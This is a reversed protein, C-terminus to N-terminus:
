QWFAGDVLWEGGEKAYTVKIDQDFVREQEAGSTEFRQASVLVEVKGSEPLFNEIQPSVLVNTIMGYYEGSYESNNKLEMLYADAWERMKKTMFEKSQVINEYNSHNSYSGFRETFAGAMKKFDEESWQRSKELEEDYTYIIKNKEAEKMEIFKEEESMVEKNDVPNKINFKKGNKLFFFYAFVFILVILVIILIKGIKKNKQNEM